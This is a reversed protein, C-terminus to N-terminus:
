GVERSDVAASGVARAGAEILHREVLREAEEPEDRRFAAAIEAHTALSARRLEPQAWYSTSFSVPNRLSNLLREVTASGSGERITAHFRSNLEVLAAVETAEGRDLAAAASELERCNAELRDAMAQSDARCAVRAAYGELLARIAYRHAIERDGIAEVYAGSHRRMGVLGDVELAKLAERVPTRSIGLEEALQEIVLKEGPRLSGDLIATRISERAEEALSVEQLRKLRKAPLPTM